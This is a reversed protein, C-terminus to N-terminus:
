ARGCDILWRSMRNQCQWNKRYDFQGSARNSILYTVLDSQQTSAFCLDSSYRVKQCSCVARKEAVEVSREKRGGQLNGTPSTLENNGSLKLSQRMKEVLEAWSGSRHRYSKSRGGRYWIRALGAEVIWWPRDGLPYSTAAASLAKLSHLRPLISIGSAYVEYQRVHRM